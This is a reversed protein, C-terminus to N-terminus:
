ELDRNSWNSQDSRSVGQDPPQVFRRVPEAFNLPSREQIRLRVPLWDPQACQSQAFHRHEDLPALRLRLAAPLTGPHFRYADQASPGAESTM